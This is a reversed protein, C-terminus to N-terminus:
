GTRMHTAGRRGACAWWPSRSCGRRTSRRSCSQSSPSSPSSRRWSSCFRPSSRIQSRWSGPSCRAGGIDVGDEPYEIEFRAPYNPDDELSFPPYPDVMLLLYAQVRWAWRSVGVVYDFLGRPYRRTFIVAFFSILIAFLAGIALLILVIFHPIVLLWKILPM